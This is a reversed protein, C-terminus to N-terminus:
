GVDSILLIEECNNAWLKVPVTAVPVLQTVTNSFAVFSLHIHAYQSLFCAYQM